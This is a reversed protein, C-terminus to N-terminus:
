GEYLPTETRVHEEILDPVAWHLADEERALKLLRARTTMLPRIDARHVPGGASQSLALGHIVAVDVDSAAGLIGADVLRIGELLLSLMAREVIEEESVPRPAIGAEERAAVALSPIVPDPRLRVGEENWIYYGRRAARGTRGEAVLLDGLLTYRRRPDRGAAMARRRAMAPGHGDRDLAEFPGVAFGARVLAADVSDPAAGDEVLHDAAELLAAGLAPVVAAGRSFLPVLGMAQFLAAARRGLPGEDEATEPLIIEALRGGKLPDALRLGLVGEEVGAERACRVPDPSDTADILLGGQPLGAGIRALAASRWPPTGDTCDAVTAAGEAAEIGGTTLRDPAGGIAAALQRRSTELARPDPDCLRVDLDAALAIAALEIGAPGAGLITLEGTETAGEGLRAARAEAVALARLARSESSGALDSLAAREYDLAADFPLLLAVEVCDVAKRAAIEAPSLRARADSVAASWAAPDALHRARDRVREAGEGALEAALSAAAGVPDEEIVADVLGLAEAQEPVLPSGQLVALAAAAGCLRAMRQMAGGGPILGLRTEPCALTAGTWALRVPCALALSLLPGTAAGRIVAVVPWPSTEIALTAADLAASFDPDPLREAPCTAAPSIVLVIGQTADEEALARVIDRLAGTDDGGGKLRLLRTGDRSGTELSLGSM